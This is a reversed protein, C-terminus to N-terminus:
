ITEFEYPRVRAQGNLSLLISYWTSLPLIHNVVVGVVVDVMRSARSLAIYVYVGCATRGEPFFSCRRKQKKRDTKHNENREIRVM